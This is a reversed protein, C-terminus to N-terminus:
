KFDAILEGEDNFWNALGYSKGRQGKKIVTKLSKQKRALNSLTPSLSNRVSAIEHKPINFTTTAYRIFEKATLVRKTKNLTDVIFQTWKYSSDDTQEKILKVTSKIGRPKKEPKPKTKKEYKRKPKPEPQIESKVEPKTTAPWEVLSYMREKKGPTKISQIQNKRTRLWFLSQTLSSLAKKSLAEKIEYQQKYLKTITKVSLPKQQDKLVQIIFNSWTPNKIISEKLPTEEPTSIVPPKAELKGLFERIEVERKQLKELEHTYIEKLENVQQPTLEIKFM